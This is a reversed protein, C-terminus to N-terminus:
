TVRVTWHSLGVLYPSNITISPLRYGYQHWICKSYMYITRKWHISRISIERNTLSECALERLKQLPLLQMSRLLRIEAAHQRSRMLSDKLLDAEEVGEVARQLIIELNEGQGGIAHRDHQLFHLFISRLRRM